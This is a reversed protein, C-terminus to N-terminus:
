LQIGDYPWNTIGQARALANFIADYSSVILSTLWM